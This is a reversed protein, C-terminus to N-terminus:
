PLRGSLQGLRAIRDPEDEAVWPDQSLADYALVFFPLAEEVRGLAYLCEALEEYVFPGKKGAAELENFQLQQMALAEEIKGQFRLTKAVCWKAIREAEADGNEAALGECKEFHCQAKIYDGKGFLTWGINNHLSKRWKRAAPRTSSTALDLAIINWKLASEPEEVIAVMHAADVALGDEGLVKGLEWAEIFLSRATEKQGSSNFTRGRELLYRVRARGTGVSPLDAISDLTSHADEFKRQLSLTRAIQTKLEVLYAENAIQEVEKFIKRFNAETEAPQNFDWRSDFDPLTNHHM